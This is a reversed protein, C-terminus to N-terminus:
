FHAEIDQGEEISDPDVSTSTPQMPANNTSEVEDMEAAWKYDDETPAAPLKPDSNATASEQPHRSEYTIDLFEFYLEELTYQELLPDKYPRRYYQCWWRRLFSFLEDEDRVLEGRGYETLADLHNLTELLRPNIPKAVHRSQSRGGEEESRRAM